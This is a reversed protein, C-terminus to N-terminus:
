KKKLVIINKDNHKILELNFRQALFEFTKVSYFSVHTDDNKYWWGNFDEPGPNFCTMISLYGSPKLLKVVKNISELPENFHEFVETSTILDYKKSPSEPSYYPDYIDVEYDKRKLLEALVPGPGSGYDLVTKVNEFPSVAFAIFNEFMTVYGENEISNEHFDYRSKEEDRTLLFQPDIFSFVCNSCHRFIRLDETESSTLTESECIKCTLSSM